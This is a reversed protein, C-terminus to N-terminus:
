RSIGGAINYFGATPGEGLVVLTVGPYIDLKAGARGLPTSETDPSAGGYPAAEGSVSLM